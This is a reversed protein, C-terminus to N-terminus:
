TSPKFDEIRSSIYIALGMAVKSGIDGVTYLIHILNSDINTLSLFYGLPYVLGFIGISFTTLQSIRQITPQIGIVPQKWLLLLRWVLVAYGLLSIVGWLAKPGILVENDFALQQHGIYGTLIMFFSAAVITYFMRVPLIAGATRITVAQILLLPITVAWDMFRYQGIANYSERMLVQRNVPDTVTVLEALMDHYYGQIRYYSLAAVAAMIATLVTWLRQVPIAPRITLAAIFTGLFIYVAVVLLFYTVLPLIGVVGATPVFSDAIEM